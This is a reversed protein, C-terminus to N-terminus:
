QGKAIEDQEMRDLEATVYAKVKTDNGANAIIQKLATLRELQITNRAQALTNHPTTEIMTQLEPSFDSLRMDRDNTRRGYRDVTFVEGSETKVIRNLSTAGQSPASGGGVSWDYPDSMFTIDAKDHILQNAANNLLGKIVTPQSGYGTQGLQYKTYLNKFTSEVGDDEVGSQYDDVMKNIETVNLGLNGSLDTNVQAFVGKSDFFSTIGNNTSTKIGARKTQGQQSINEKIIEVADKSFVGMDFVRQASDADLFGYNMLRKMQFLNKGSIKGPSPKLSNGIQKSVKEKGATTPPADATIQEDVAKEKDTGLFSEPMSETASVNKIAKIQGKTWGYPNDDSKVDAGSDRFQTLVEISGELRLKEAEQDPTLENKTRGLRGSYTPVNLQKLAAKRTNIETNIQQRPIQSLFEPNLENLNEVTNVTELAAAITKRNNAKAKINAGSKVGPNVAELVFQQTTTETPVTNDNTSSVATQQQQQQQQQQAQSDLQAGVEFAANVTNNDLSGVPTGTIEAITQAMESATKPLPMDGANFFAADIQNKLIGFGAANGASIPDGEEATRYKSLYMQKGPNKPDYLEVVQRGDGVDVIGRVFYDEGNSGTFLNERVGNANLMSVFSAMKQPDSQLLEASMPEGNTTFSEMYSPVLKQLQKNQQEMKLDSTQQDTKATTAITSATTAETSAKTADRQGALDGWQKAGQGLVAKNHALTEGFQNKQTEAQAKRYEDDVKFQDTQIKSQDTRYKQDSKTDSINKQFVALQQALGAEFQKNQMQAAQRSQIAGLIPNMYAM